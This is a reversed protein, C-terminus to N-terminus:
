PSRPPRHHAITSGPLHISRAAIMRMVIRVGNTAPNGPHRLELVGEAAPQPDIRDVGGRHERARIEPVLVDDVLPRPRPVHRGARCRLQAHSRIRQPKAGTLPMVAQRDRIGDLRGAVRDGPKLPAAGLAPAVPPRGELQRVAYVTHM